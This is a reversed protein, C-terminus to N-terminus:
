YYGIIGKLEPLVREKISRCAKQYGAAYVMELLDAIESEEYSCGGDGNGCSYGESIRVLLYTIRGIDEENIHAPESGWTYGRWKYAKEKLEKDFILM